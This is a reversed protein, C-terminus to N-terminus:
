VFEYKGINLQIRFLNMVKPHLKPNAGVIDQRGRKWENGDSDTVVAGAERAILVPALYDHDLGANQACYDFGGSAMYCWGLMCGLQHIWTDTKRNMNELFDKYREIYDGYVETKRPMRSFCVTAFDFDEKENVHIPLGNLTAGHDKKAFFLEGAIPNYVAGLETEGNHVLAIIICWLPIGHAFNRTGDIPDIVWEYEAGANIPIKLEESTIHHDPFQTHIAHVLFESTKIDAETLLDSLHSKTEFTVGKHFYDLALSGAEKIISKLFDEM